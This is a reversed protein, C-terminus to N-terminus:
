FMWSISAGTERNDIYLVIGTTLTAAGALTWLVNTVLVRSKVSSIQSEPCGATTRGCSDHLENFKSNAALGAVVAGLALAGTTGVGTWFYTRYHPRHDLGEDVSKELQAQVGRPPTVTTPTLAIPALAPSSSPRLRVTVTQVKGALVEISEIAPSFQQHQITIQHYGPVAWIPERQPTAGAGRGDLTVESDAPWCNIKLQGLKGRLDASSKRADSLADPSADPALALFKEYATLAEVPRGLDRNAQAINFQLKPSPFIAYAQEFKDLASQYDGEEFLASGQKLLVQAKSKAEPHAPQQPAISQSLLVAVLVISPGM